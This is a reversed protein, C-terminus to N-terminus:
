QGLVFSLCHSFQSNVSLWLKTFSHAIQLRSIARLLQPHLQGAEGWKEGCLNTSKSPPATPFQVGTAECSTSWRVSSDLCNSKDSREWAAFLVFNRLTSHASCVICLLSALGVLSCEICASSGNLQRVSLESLPHLSYECFNKTKLSKSQKSKVSCKVSCNGLRSLNIVELHSHSLSLM